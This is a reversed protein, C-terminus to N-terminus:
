RARDWTAPTAAASGATTPGSASSSAGPRGPASATPPPSRRWSPPRDSRRRGSAGSRPRRARSSASCCGPSGDPPSNDFTLEVPETDANGYGALGDARWFPEDYVAQCKIVRGMPIRRLLRAHRAPLGPEFHIRRALVPPVAVVVRRASWTGRDSVVDLRRGDRTIRRVPARLIVRGDLQAAVEISIKQSGGVFRSQQAGGTINILREFTGVTDANGAGATYALSFLLSTQAPETAFVSRFGLELLFRAGPTTGREAIFDEFTRRDLQAAGPTDWPREVPVTAALRDLEALAVATEPIGDPVPPIPGLPGGADFTSRQGQYILVGLGQIYTDFTGVGVERALAMLRDQTPGVWQGGVEVVEGGGLSANLTRGGVRDTAELVVVSHGAARLRRATTLGALGAGVVVVDASRSRRRAAGTAQAPVAAAVTAAAGAGILERRTIGM